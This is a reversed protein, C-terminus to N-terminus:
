GLPVRGPQWFIFSTMLRIPSGKGTHQWHVAIFSDSPAVNQYVARKMVVPVMYHEMRHLKETAYDPCLCNEFALYFRCPSLHRIIFISEFNSLRLQGSADYTQWYDTTCGTRFTLHISARILVYWYKKTMMQMCDREGEGRTCSHDCLAIHFSSRSTRFPWSINAMWKTRALRLSIFYVEIIIPSQLAM